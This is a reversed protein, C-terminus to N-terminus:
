RTCTAPYPVLSRAVWLGGPGPPVHRLSLPTGAAAANAGVGLEGLVGGRLHSPLDQITSYELVVLFFVPPSSASSHSTGTPGWSLRTPSLYPPILSLLDALHGAAVGDPARILSLAVRVPLLPLFLSFPLPLPPFSSALFCPVRFTLSFFHPELPTPGGLSWAFEGCLLM